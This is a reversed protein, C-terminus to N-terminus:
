DASPWQQADHLVRLIEICNTIINERYIVIFPLGNIVLERTNKLRGHRGARPHESLFSNQHSQTRVIM